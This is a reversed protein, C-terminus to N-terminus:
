MSNIVREAIRTTIKIKLKTNTKNLNIKIFITVENVSIDLLIVLVRYLQKQRETRRKLTNLFDFYDTFM